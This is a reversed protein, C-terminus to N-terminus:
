STKKQRNTKDQMEAIREASEIKEREVALKDNTTRETSAIQERKVQAGTIVDFQKLIRDAIAQGDEVGGGLGQNERAATDYEGKIVTNQDKRDWETNILTQQLMTKFEEFGKAREDADAQRKAENDASAEDAQRALDEIYAVKTKMEAFSESAIMELILTASAKNQILQKMTSKAEDLRRQEKASTRVYLELEADIFEAPDLNLLEMDMLDSTYLAKAGNATLIKAYSLLDNLDEEDIEEFLTFINDTIINSQFLSRENNTPSSSAYTQGKRPLTIGLVDDWMQRYHNQLDILQKIQDYMSMDLVQYQNYSKDVKRRDRDILGYGMAEAYYFFKEETWDGHEPIANVDMLLIKGKSKAIMREITWNIIMVMMQFPLGIKMVSINSSHTDSFARGNYPLNGNQVVIPGPEAYIDQLIRWCEYVEDRYEIKSTEGATADVPYDEDVEMTEITGTMPDPYSLIKVMKKGRWTVHYVPVLDRSMSANNTLYDFFLPGTFPVNAGLNAKSYIEEVTAKTLSSHFREVVDAVTLWQRRVAWSSKNVFVENPSKAYKLEMVPVREYVLEGNVINKYSYAFGGILFDKFRQSRKRHFRMKDLNKGFWRQAMIAQNDKYTAHFREAVKAPIDLQPAQQEQQQTGKANGIGQVNAQKAAEEAIAMFHQTLNQVMNKQLNEQYENYAKEGTNVVQVVFPRQRLENLLLDISTRLINLPRIKAPFRKYKQDKANLPDTLHSFWKMPFVNNYVDYLTKTDLDAYETNSGSAMQWSNQIYFDCNQHFWEDTKESYPVIQNPRGISVGSRHVERTDEM